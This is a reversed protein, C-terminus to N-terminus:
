KSFSISLPYSHSSIFGLSHTPAVSKRLTMLIFQIYFSVLRDIQPVNHPMAKYHAISSIFAKLYWPRSFDISICFLCSLDPM